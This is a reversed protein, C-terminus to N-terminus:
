SQQCPYLAQTPPLDLWIPPLEPALGLEPDILVAGLEGVTLVSGAAFTDDNAAVYHLWPIVASISAGREVRCRLLSAHVVAASPGSKMAFRDALAEVLPEAATYDAREIRFRARWLDAAIARFPEFEAARPGEIHDVRDWGLISRKGGLNLPVGELTLPGIESEIAPEGGRLHVHSEQQGLAAVACLGVSALSLLSRRLTM